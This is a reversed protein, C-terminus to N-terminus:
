NADYSVGGLLTIKIDTLKISANEMLKGETGKAEAVARYHLKDMQELLERITHGKKPLITLSVPQTSTPEAGEKHAYVHVDDVDIIKGKLSVNDRSLADVSLTLDLPFDTVVNADIRVAKTDMKNIDELDEAIGEETGQYVLKFSPGFELPTYVKYNVGISYEKPVDIPIPMNDTEMTVDSVDVRIEDPVKLLLESLNEITINIRELSTFQGPIVAQEPNNALCFVVHKNAPLVFIGTSKSVSATGDLYKSTLTVSTSADAPLTNNVEVFFAPNALDLCTEPDNIFDPMNDLKITAVDGVNSIIKGAFSKVVIDKNFSAGGEFGIMDPRIVDYSGSQYIATKQEDTLASEDFDSTELRFTGDLKFIGNLSVKNNAFVFGDNGTIAKDFTILVDIAHNEDVVTNVDKYTFIIEGKNNDFVKADEDKLVVKGDIETWHRFEAHAVHLGMPITVKLDDLHVKNIFAHEKDFTIKIQADLTTGDVFDVSTVSVIDESIIGSSVDIKYHAKDEEKITYLYTQDLPMGANTARNIDTRSNSVFKDVSVFAKFGDLSPSTVTIPDVTVNPVDASGGEILFYEGDIAQVVGDNELDVINKLIIEGTSSTPLTLDSSTGLTMDVDNLDYKEDVCSVFLCSSLVLMGLGCFRKIEM